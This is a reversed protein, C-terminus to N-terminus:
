AIRVSLEIQSFGRFFKVSYLWNESGINSVPIDQIQFLVATWEVTIYSELFEIHSVPKIQIDTVYLFM